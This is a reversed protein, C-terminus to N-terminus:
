EVPLMLVMTWLLRDFFDTALRFFLDMAGACPVFGSDFSARDFVILESLTQPRAPIPLSILAVASFGTPQDPLPQEVAVHLFDTVFYTPLRRLSRVEESIRRVDTGCCLLRLGFGHDAEIRDVRSAPRPGFGLLIEARGAGPEPPWGPSRRLSRRCSAGWCCPTPFSRPICSRSRLSLRPREAGVNALLGIVPLGSAYMLSVAQPPATAARSSRRVDARRRCWLAPRPVSGHWRTMTPRMIRRVPFLPLEDGVARHRLQRRYRHRLLARPLQLQRQLRGGSDGTGRSRPTARQARQM